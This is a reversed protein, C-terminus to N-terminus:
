RIGWGRWLGLVVCCLLVVLLVVHTVVMLEQTTGLKVLSSSNTCHGVHCALEEASTTLAVV